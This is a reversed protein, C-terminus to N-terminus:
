HDPDATLASGFLTVPPLTPPPGGEIVNKLAATTPSDACNAQLVLECYSKWFVIQNGDGNPFHQYDAVVQLFSQLNAVDPAAIRIGQVMCDGLGRSLIIYGLPIRIVSGAAVQRNRIINQFCIFYSM